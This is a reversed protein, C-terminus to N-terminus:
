ADEPPRWTFAHCLAVATADAEDWPLLETEKLLQKVMAAVQKKSARGFGVVAQKISLPSYEYIPYGRMAPIAIAVGRSAGLVQATQFNQVYITQEVAVHDITHTDLVKMVAEAIKGLCDVVALAPKFHLTESHLLRIHEQGRYDVVSLGTGRLSPDIGLIVGNFKGRMPLYAPGAENKPSPKSTLKQTWLNRASKRAM